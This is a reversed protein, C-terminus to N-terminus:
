PIGRLLESRKGWGFGEPGFIEGVFNVTLSFEIKRGSKNNQDTLTKSNFILRISPHFCENVM